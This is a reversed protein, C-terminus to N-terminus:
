SGENQEREEVTIHALDFERQLITRYHHPGRPTNTLVLIECAHAKPAVRWVHLDAIITNEDEIHRRVEDLGIAKAHGDLLEWGADQCLNYAWKLIVMAGVIGIVADLWVAGFVMGISLAIIALVSTFADAIVHVYASRLNHDHVHDHTEHHHHSSLIFASAVNVILGLIAVVIAENFHIPQPTILRQISEMAILIAIIALVIASTYGGLPIFKGAGFSFKENMRGSQALRYAIFSISLAGAHSAMHWGDALLAMSSTIYGAFIEIVMMSSTLLIVFLTKRENKAIAEDDLLFNHHHDAQSSLWKKM